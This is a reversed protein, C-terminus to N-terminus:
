SEFLTKKTSKLSFFDFNCDNQHMPALALRSADKKAGLAEFDGVWKVLQPYIKNLRSPDQNDGRSVNGSQLGRAGFRVVGPSSVGNARNVVPEVGISPLRKAIRNLTHTHVIFFLRGLHAWCGVWTRLRSILLVKIARQM